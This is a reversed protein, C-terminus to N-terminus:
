YWTKFSIDYSGWERITVGDFSYSYTGNGYLSGPSDGRIQFRGIRNQGTRQALIKYTDGIVLGTYSIPFFHWGEAGISVSDGTALLNNSSDYLKVYVEDTPSGDKRIYFSVGCISNVSPEFTNGKMENGGLLGAYSGLSTQSQDITAESGAITNSVNVMITAESYNNSTDYAVVKICHQDNSTTTTDWSYSYPSSTDTSKYNGDIYFKVEKIGINDSANANIPITESLNSGDSPSTINISPSESDTSELVSIIDWYATATGSCTKRAYTNNKLEISINSENWDSPIAFDYYYWTNGDDGTVTGDYGGYEENNCTHSRRSYYAYAYATTKSYSNTGDSIIFSIWSKSDRKSGRNATVYTRNFIRIYAVDNDINSLTVYRYKGTNDTLTYHDWTYTKLSYSGKQYYDTVHEIYSKGRGVYGRTTWTGLNTTLNDEFNSEIESSDNFVKVSIIHSDTLGGDDYVITKISYDRDFYNHTNWNYAYPYTTDTLVLVDNVYFEVEAISTDDTANVDITVVDNVTAGDPPSVIAISPIDDCIGRVDIEKFYHGSRYGGPRHKTIKIYQYNGDIHYYPSYVSGYDWGDFQAIQTWSGSANTKVYVKFYDEAYSTNAMLRFKEIYLPTEFDLQIWSSSDGNSASTSTDGDTFNYPSSTKSSATVIAAQAINPYANTDMVATVSDTATNGVLDTITVTVSLENSSYTEYKTIYGNYNLTKMDYPEPPDGSIFPGDMSIRKGSYNTNVSLTMPLPVGQNEWPSTITVSPYVYPTIMVDCRKTDQGNYIEPVYVLFDGGNGTVVEADGEHLWVYKNSNYRFLVATEGGSNGIDHFKFNTTENNLILNVSENLTLKRYVSQGESVIEYTYEPLGATKNNVDEVVGDGKYESDDKIIIATNNETYIKRQGSSPQLGNYHEFAEKITMGSNTQELVLDFVTEELDIVYEHQYYDYVIEIIKDLAQAVTINPAYACIQNTPNSGIEGTLANAASLITNKDNVAQQYEDYRILWKDNLGGTLADQNYFAAIRQKRRYAYKDGDGFAALQAADLLVGRYTLATNYGHFIGNEDYYSLEQYTEWATDEVPSAYDITWGRHETWINKKYIDNLEVDAYIWNNTLVVNNHTYRDGHFNLHGIPTIFKFDVDDINYSLSVKLKWGLPITLKGTKGGGIEKSMGAEFLNLINLSGEYSKFSASFSNHVGGFLPIKPLKINASFSLTFGFKYKSKYEYEMPFSIIFDGGDTNFVSDFWNTEFVVKKKVDVGTITEGVFPDSKLPTDPKELVDENITDEPEPFICATISIIFFVIIILLVSLLVFNKKKM